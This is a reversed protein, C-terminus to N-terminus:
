SQSLKRRLYSAHLLTAVASVGLFIALTDGPGTNTLNQAPPSTTTPSPQPAPNTPQSTVPTSPTTTQIPKNTVQPTTTTPTSKQTNPKSTSKPRSKPKSTTIATQGSSPQNQKNALKRYAWRGGFFLGVVVAMTVILSVFALLWAMGLHERREAQYYDKVEQPVKNDTGDDAAKSKRKFLAM